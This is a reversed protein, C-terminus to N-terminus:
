HKEPRSERWLMVALGGAIILGVVSAWMPIVLGDIVAEWGFILRLVHLVAVLSFIVIAITTFPKV